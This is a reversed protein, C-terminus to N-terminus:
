LSKLHIKMEQVCFMKYVNHIFTFKIIRIHLQLDEISQHMQIFNIIKIAFSMM